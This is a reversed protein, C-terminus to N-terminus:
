KTPSRVQLKSTVSIGLFNNEFRMKTTVAEYKQRLIESIDLLVQYRQLILLLDDVYVLIRDIRKFGIDLLTSTLEEYWLV